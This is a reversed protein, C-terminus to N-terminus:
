LQIEKHITASIEEHIMPIELEVRTGGAYGKEDNIDVVKVVATIGLTQSILEIRDHTIQMGFSKASGNESPKHRASQERGIGNDCIHIMLKDHWNFVSLSLIRKGEKRMLGHWIANEVYPQILLPPIFVQATNIDPDIDISYEFEHNFRMAEMEIYLTLANIEDELTVLSHGSNKLIARMLQSFKTLYKSAAATNEKLIYNKISNLSNFLFHPNMQARLATMENEALKKNFMSKLNAERRLQRIRLSYILFLLGLFFCATLILFWKSKYFPATVRIVPRTLGDIWINGDASVQYFFQYEGAELNTYQVKGSNGNDNWKKDYGELRFRFLKDSTYFPWACIFSLTNEGSEVELMELYAAPGSADIPKHNLEVSSLLPRTTNPTKSHFVPSTSISVGSPGALVLEGTTTRIISHYHMGPSLNRDETNIPSYKGTAHNFTGTQNYSAIWFEEENRPYLTFTIDYLPDIHPNRYQKWQKSKTNYHIIGGAWSSFWMDEDSTWEVDILMYDIAALGVEASTFPMPHREFTHRDKHFSLLGARSCIWLKNPDSPDGTVERLTNLYQIHMPAVATDTYQYRTLLMSTPDCRVLGKDTSIWIIGESDSYFDRVRTGPFTGGESEPLIRKFNGSRPHYICIGLNHTGIWITSDKYLHLANISIDTLSNSDQLNPSFGTIAHGDYRFLGLDSGIWLRGLHDQILGHIEPHHPLGQRYDLTRFVPVPDQAMGLLHHIALTFCFFWKRLHM